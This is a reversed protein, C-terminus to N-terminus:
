HGMLPASTCLRQLANTEEPVLLPAEVTRHSPESTKTLGGRADMEAIRVIIVDYDATM